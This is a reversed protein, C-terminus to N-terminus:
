QGKYRMGYVGNNLAEVGYVANTQKKWGFFSHLAEIYTTTVLTPSVLVILISQYHVENM